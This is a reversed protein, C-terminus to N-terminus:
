AKMPVPPVIRSKTKYLNTNDPGDENEMARTRVRVKAEVEKKEAEIKQKQLLDRKRQMDMKAALQEKQHQLLNQQRATKMQEVQIDRDSIAQSINPSAYTKSRLIIM